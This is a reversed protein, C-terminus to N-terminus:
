GAYPEIEKREVRRQLGDFDSLGAHHGAIVFALMRGLPGAYAGAAERAGATSHDPGKAANDHGGKIYAQFAASCKGIDHLLGACRAAEAWGFPTAFEAAQAAVALLHDRLTEWTAPPRGPLSHAYAAIAAAKAKQGTEPEAEM